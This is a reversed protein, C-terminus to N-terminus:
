GINKLKIDLLDLLIGPNLMSNQPRKTISNFTESSISNLKVKPVKKIISAQEIIKSAFQYWSCHPLQCFHYTGM